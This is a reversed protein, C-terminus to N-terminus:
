LKLHLNIQLNILPMEFTRWFNRLYKLPAIIQFNKAGGSGTQGTIQQRFKFSISNNNSALFDIVNKNNDLAPVDRYYQWSSGSTKSYVDNYEIVIIM